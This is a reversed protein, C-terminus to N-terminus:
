EEDSESEEAPILAGTDDGDPSTAEPEETAAPETAAAEATTGSGQECSWGLDRLKGVFNDAMRECYGAENLARWLVQTEGPAETDKFYHVECPVTVGTEYFIVVRRQLDDLACQYDHPAQATSLSPLLVALFIALNKGNM